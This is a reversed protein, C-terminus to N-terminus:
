PQQTPTNRPRATPSLPAIPAPSFSNPGPITAKSTPQVSVSTPSPDPANNTSGCAPFAIVGVAALAVLRVTRSGRM